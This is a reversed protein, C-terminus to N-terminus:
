PFLNTKVSEMGYFLIFGGTWTLVATFTMLSLYDNQSLRFGQSLGVVYLLGGTILVVLGASFSYSVDQFIERRKLYIFYASILPILFIHSYLEDDSSLVWLDRLPVYFIMFVIISFLIFLFNRPHLIMTISM